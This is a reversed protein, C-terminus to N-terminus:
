ILDNADRQYIIGLASSTAKGCVLLGSDNNFHYNQSIELETHQAGTDIGNLVGIKTLQTAGADTTRYLTPMWNGGNVQMAIIDFTTGGKFLAIIPARHYSFTFTGTTDTQTGTVVTEPFTLAQVVKAQGQQQTYLNWGNNSGNGVIGYLMGDTTCYGHSWLTSTLARADIIACNTYLETPSLPTLANGTKVIKSFTEEINWWKKFPNDSLKTKIITLGECQVPSVGALVHEVVMYVEDRTGNYILLPYVWDNLVATDVVPFYENHSQLGDLSLGCEIRGPNIPATPNRRQDFTAMVNGLIAEQHYQSDSLYYTTAVGKAQPLTVYNTFDFNEIFKRYRINSGELGGYHRSMQSIWLADNFLSLSPAEHIDETTAYHGLNIGTRVGSSDKIFIYADSYEPSTLKKRGSFIHQNGISWVTKSLGYGHGRTLLGATFSTIYNSSVTEFTSPVHKFTKTVDVGTSVFSQGQYWSTFKDRQTSTLVSTSFIISNFNFSVNSAGANSAAVRSILFAAGSGPRTVSNSWTVGGDISARCTTNIEIIMTVKQGLVYPTAWTMKTSFAGGLRVYCGTNSELRVVEGNVSHSFLQGSGGLSSSSFRDIIITCNGTGLNIDSAFDAYGSVSFLASLYPDDIPTYDRTLSGSTRSLLPGSTEFVSKLSMINAGGATGYDNTVSTADYALGPALYAALVSPLTYSTINRWDSTVGSITGTIRYYYTTDASLGSDTFTSLSGSYIQSSSSYDSNVSREVIYSDYGSTWNLVIQTTYINNAYLDPATLTVSSGGGGGWVWHNIASLVQRRRIISKSPGSGLSSRM